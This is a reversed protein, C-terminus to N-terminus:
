VVSFMLGGISAQLLLPSAYSAPLSLLGRVNYCQISHFSYLFVSEVKSTVKGENRKDKIASTGSKKEKIHSTKILQSPFLTNM